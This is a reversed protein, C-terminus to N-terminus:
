KKDDIENAKKMMQMFEEFDIEGDGNTDIDKMATNIAEKSCLNQIDEGQLLDLVEQNDISGSGDKDFMKFATRLYDDRMYIQADMTASIFETYDIEGSGDTDAAKLIDYLHSCDGCTGNSKTNDLGKKLEALSLTGDNNM